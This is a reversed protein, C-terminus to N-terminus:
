KIVSEEKREKRRSKFKDVEILILVSLLGLASGIMSGLM